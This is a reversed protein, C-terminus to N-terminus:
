LVITNDRFPFENTIVCCTYLSHYSIKNLIIYCNKLLQKKMVKELHPGLNYAYVAFTGFNWLFRTLTKAYLYM